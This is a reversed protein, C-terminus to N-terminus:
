DFLFFRTLTVEGVKETARCSLSWALATRFSVTRTAPGATRDIIRGSQAAVPGLAVWPGLIEARRLVPVSNEVSPFSM